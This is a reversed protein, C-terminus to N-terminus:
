DPKASRHLSSFYALVQEALPVHSAGKVVEFSINRYGEAAAVQKAKAFQQELGQRHEDLEGQFARVPLNVRAAEGSVKAICRGNFNGCSTAAAALKEPHMLVMAWTLHAGASHGTIFYKEEAGYQERLDTMIADLGQQDFVCIGTKDIQDWVESAYHYEPLNRQHDGGGDTLIVPSVIMFPMHKRAAVYVEASNRFNKLGGEITFVVPWKKAPTWGEPLSLYYQIPHHTATKLVIDPQGTQGLACNAWTCMVLGMPLVLRAASFVAQALKRTM